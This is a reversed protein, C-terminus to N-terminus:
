EPKDLNIIDLMRNGKKNKLYEIDRKWREAIADVENIEAVIENQAEIPPIPIKMRNFNKIDLSKNNSGREYTFDIYDKNNNLYM